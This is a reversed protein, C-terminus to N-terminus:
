AGELATVRAKLATMETELTEIKSIAEQLAGTLLPVLKSQDIGQMVPITNGDGDLKNDGASTGDPADGDDIEQQTWTEVENHTGTIAEPVVTQAEHALFGDVTTDADVIFNFRKPALAKVRDIAGTMDVVSEKLRHDSSTNYATSSGNCSINGSSSESANGFFRVVPRSSGDTHGINVMMRDFTSAQFTVGGQNNDGHNTTTGLQVDGNQLRMVESAADTSNPNVFFRMAMTAGAPTNGTAVIDAARAGSDDNYRLTIGEGNNTHSYTPTAGGTSDVVVLDSKSTGTIDVGSSTTEIRTTNDHNLAASGDDTFSALNEGGDASRIFVGNTGQIYLAGTGSDTIFSNSGDHNITLDGGTGFILTANDNFKLDDTGTPVFCVTTDADNKIVVDSTSGQGTLILGEASTFGLAAADGAATDGTPLVTGSATVDGTVTVNNKLESTGSVTLNDATNFRQVGAGIYPM